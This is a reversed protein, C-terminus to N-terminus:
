ECTRTAKLIVLNLPTVATESVLHCQLLNVLLIVFLSSMHVAPSMANSHYQM